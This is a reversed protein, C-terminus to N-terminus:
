YCEGSYLEGRIVSEQIYSEELSVRRFIVRRKHCEGSYLEGRIISRFIVRM